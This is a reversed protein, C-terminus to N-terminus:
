THVLPAQMAVHEPVIHLPLQTSVLVFMECQPAHPMDHGTRAFEVGVQVLPEHPMVHLM